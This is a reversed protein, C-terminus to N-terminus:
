IIVYNQFTIEIGHRLLNKKKKYSLQFTNSICNKKEVYLTMDTVYFRCTVFFNATGINTLEVPTVNM